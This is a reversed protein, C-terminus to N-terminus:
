ICNLRSATVIADEDTLDLNLTFYCQQDNQEISATCMAMVNNGFNSGNASRVEVSPADSIDQTWFNIDGDCGEGTEDVEVVFNNLDKCKLARKANEECKKKLDTALLNFSLLLLVTTIIKM